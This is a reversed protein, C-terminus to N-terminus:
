SQLSSLMKDFSLGKGNYINAECLTQIPNDLLIDKLEKLKEIPLAIRGDQVLSFADPNIDGNEMWFYRFNFTHSPLKLSFELNSDATPYEWLFCDYYMNTDPPWPESNSAWGCIYQTGEYEVLNFGGTGAGALSALEADILLIPRGSDFTWVACYLMDSGGVYVYMLEDQGDGNLDYLCGNEYRWQSPIFDEQKKQLEVIVDQYAEQYNVYLETDLTESEQDSINSTSDNVIRDNSINEQCSTFMVIAFLFYFLCCFKKMEDVRGILTLSLTPMDLFGITTFM